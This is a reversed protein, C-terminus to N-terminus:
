QSNHHEYLGLLNRLSKIESQMNKMKELLNRIVDIGETNIGMDYHWRTYKEIDHLQEFSIYKSDELIIMEILGDNELSFLFAQDVEYTKCFEAIAILESPM